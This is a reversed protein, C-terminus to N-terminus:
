DELEARREGAADQVGVRDDADAIAELHEDVEGARIDDAVPDVNRDLFAEVDFTDAEADPEDAAPEDTVAGVLEDGDVMAFDGRQEVLYEAEAASVEARDGHEFRGIDRVRVRGPTVKEVTPM